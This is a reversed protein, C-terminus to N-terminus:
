PKEYDPGPVFALTGAVGIKVRRYFVHPDEDLFFEASNRDLLRVEVMTPSRVTLQLANGALRHLLPMWFFAALRGPYPIFHLSLAADGAGIETKFPLQKFPFNLVVGALLRMSKTSDGAKVEIVEAAGPRLSCWAFRCLVSLFYEVNNLKEIGTINAIFRRLAPLRHHWRSLDGPSRGFQGFGAMTAAYFIDPPSDKKNAEARIICCPSIRNERLNASIGKLAREPDRPIGFQRAVVNGSGMRLASIRIREAGPLSGPKTRQCLGEIAARLTGGGGGVLIFGPANSASLFSVAMEKAQVHGEVTKVQLDTGSGLANDFIRHLLDVTADSHGTASSRNILFLVRRIQSGQVKSSPSM